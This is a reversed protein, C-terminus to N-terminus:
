KQYKFILGLPSKKLNEKQTNLEKIEDVTKPLDKLKPGDMIQDLVFASAGWLPTGICASAVEVTGIVIWSGFDKGAVKWKKDILKKINKQHQNIAFNLNNFVKHSTQTFDLENATVLEDIGASLISRIENIAGNKRLEILGSPPIKGIWNLSGNNLGSLGKVIHLKSFDKNPHARESDYELKWKFYEWSTPADILPIGGVKASKMLLENCVGMRGIGQMSVIIGPNKSGMLLKSDGEMQNKIQVDLPEEFDSDFLVKEPQKVENLVKEITDLEKGFDILEEFTEFERGFVKSAHYLADKEGLRQIEEFAFEDMMEKDPLIVVIPKELDALVLDKYQLVNLAHKLLYYVRQQKDWVNFMHRSRIFPCPLVITDTYIGCKSAINEDNAPFLDGGFVAKISEYDDELHLYGSEALLEWFEELDKILPEIPDNLYDISPKGYAIAKALQHPTAKHELMMKYFHNFNGEIRSYYGQQIQSLSAASKMKERHDLHEAMLAMSRITGDITSLDPEGNKDFRANLLSKEITGRMSESFKIKGAKIQDRLILVRRKVRKEYEKQENDDM